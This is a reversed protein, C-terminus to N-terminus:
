EEIGAAILFDRADRVTSKGTEPQPHPKHFVARVDGIRLRIRSGQRETVEGGLAKVLNEIDKFRINAQVAFVANLTRQHKRSLPVLIM